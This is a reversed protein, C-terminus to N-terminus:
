EVPPALKMRKNPQARCLVALETSGCLGPRAQAHCRSVQTAITPGQRFAAVFRRKPMSLLQAPFTTIATGV